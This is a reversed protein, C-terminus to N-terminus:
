KDSSKDGLINERIYTFMEAIAGEVDDSALIGCDKWEVARSVEVMKNGQLKSLIRDLEENEEHLEYDFAPEEPEMVTEWRVPEQGRLCFAMGREQGRGNHTVCMESERGYDVQHFMVRCTPFEKRTREVVDNENM